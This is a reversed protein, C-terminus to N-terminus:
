PSQSGSIISSPKRITSPSLHAPMPVEWTRIRSEGGPAFLENGEHGVRIGQRPKGVADLEHLEKLVGKRFSIGPGNKIKIQVSELLHAVTM